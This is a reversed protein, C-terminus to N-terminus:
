RNRGGNLCYGKQTLKHDGTIMVSKIGARDCTKVAEKVEERPPDIMGVLGVFIMDKEIEDTSSATDDLRKYALGLVRLADEAMEHAVAMVTKRDESTLAKEEGNRFIRSCSTL